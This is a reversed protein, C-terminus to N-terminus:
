CYMLIGTLTAVARPLFQPRSQMHLQNHVLRTKSHIQILLDLAPSKKREPPMTLFLFFGELYSFLIGFPEILYVQCEQLLSTLKLFMEHYVKSQTALRV